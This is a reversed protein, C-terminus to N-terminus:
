DGCIYGCESGCRPSVIACTEHECTAHCTQPSFWCKWSRTCEDMHKDCDDCITVNNWEPEPVNENFDPAVAVEPSAAAAASSHDKASDDKVTSSVANVNAPGAVPGAAVFSAAASVALLFTTLKMIFTNNIIETSHRSDRTEPPRSSDFHYDLKNLALTHPSFLSESYRDPPM